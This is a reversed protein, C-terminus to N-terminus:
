AKLNSRRWFRRKPHSRVKRKTKMIVWLPVIKNQKKKKALRKKLNLHKNKAM